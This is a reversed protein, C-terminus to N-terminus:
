YYDYGYDDEGADFYHTDGDMYGRYYGGDDSDDDGIYEEGYVDGADYDDYDDDDDDDDYDRSNSTNDDLSDHSGLGFGSSDDSDHSDWGDDSDDGTHASSGDSGSDNSNKPVVNSLSSADSWDDSAEASYSLPALAAAAVAACGALREERERRVEAIMALEEDTPVHSPDLAIRLADDCRQAAQSGRSPLPFRECRGRRAHKLWDIARRGASDAATRDAGNELLLWVVDSWGACVATMLPTAGRLRLPCSSSPSSSSSASVSSADSQGDTAAGDAGHLPGCATNVEAGAEIAALITPYRQRRSLRSDHSLYCLMHVLSSTPHTNDVPSRDAALACGLGISAEVHQASNVDAGNRLMVANM